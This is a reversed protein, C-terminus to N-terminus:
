WGFRAMKRWIEMYVHIQIENAKYVISFFLWGTPVWRALLVSDYFNQLSTSISKPREAGLESHISPAQTPPYLYFCLNLSRSFHAFSLTPTVSM